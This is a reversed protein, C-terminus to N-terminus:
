GIGYNVGSDAPRTVAAIFSSIIQGANEIGALARIAQEREALCASTAGRLAQSRLDPDRSLRRHSVPTGALYEPVASIRGNLMAPLAADLRTREGRLALIDEAHLFGRGCASGVDRLAEVTGAPAGGLLAGIRAPFEFLSAFLERASVAGGPGLRGDRFTILELLWDAFSWSVEPASEAILRSAQSLLFDGALVTAAVAWDVGRGSHPRTSPPGLFTLAGLQALEIAAAVMACRAEPARGGALLAGFFLLSPRLRLSGAADDAMAMRALFPWEERITTIVIEDCAVLLPAVMIVEEIGLDVHDAPSLAALGEPELVVRRTKVFFPHENRATADLVRWTLHYRRAAHRAAEFYGVFSASLQDAYAERAARADSQNDAIASAALLGSRLALNLGEGTFPNVLGAADGVLLCRASAIREPTFGVDLPGSVLPGAPTIASFRRDSDALGALAQDLLRDATLGGTEAGVRAAGVTVADGAAPIVWACTPPADARTADPAMLSLLATGRLRLGAFRRACAIGALPVPSLGALPHCGALSADSGSAMIVHRASIECTGSAATLVTARHGTGSPELDTVTGALLQAGAAIAKQRLAHRLRRVGAAAAASDTIQRTARSFRIRVSRVSRLYPAPRLGLSSLAGLAQGTILVDHDGVDDGDGVIVVSLGRRAAAIAAATGAPGAGIVLVDPEPQGGPNM